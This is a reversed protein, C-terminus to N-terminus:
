VVSDNPAAPSATASAPNFAYAGTLKANHAQATKPAESM